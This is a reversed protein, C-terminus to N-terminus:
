RWCSLTSLGTKRCRIIDSTKRCVAAGYRCDRAWPADTCRCRYCRARQGAGTGDCAVCPPQCSLSQAATAPKNLRSRSHRRKRRQAKLTNGCCLLVRATIACHLMATRRRMVKRRVRVQPVQLSHPAETGAATGCHARTKPLLMEGVTRQLHEAIRNCQIQAAPM